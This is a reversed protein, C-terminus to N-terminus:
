EDKAMTNDRFNNDFEVYDFVFSLSMTNLDDDTTMIDFDMGGFSVLRCRYFWFTKVVIGEGNYVNLWMDFTGEKVFQANEVNLRKVFHNYLLTYMKWEKDLIVEISIESYDVTDAALHINAGSRTNIAPPSMSIEPLSFTQANLDIGELTTMGFQINSTTSYSNNNISIPFGKEKNIFEM